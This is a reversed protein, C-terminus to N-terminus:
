MFVASKEEDPVFVDTKVLRVAELINFVPYIPEPVVQQRAITKETVYFEGGLLSHDCRLARFGEKHGEVVSLYGTLSDHRDLLTYEHQALTHNLIKTTQHGYYHPNYFMTHLMAPVAFSIYTIKPSLSTSLTALLLQLGSRTFFDSTGMLQPLMRGSALEMGTFAFYSLVAPTAEAVRSGYRSLGINSLLSFTTLFSLLLVPFYTLTETILPGFQAGFKASFPFLVSQIVPIYYCYPGIWDKSDFEIKQQKFSKSAIYAVIATFTIGKQHYINSPISGYVPSLNYQSVHSGVAAFALIALAVGIRELVPKEPTAAAQANDSKKEKPKAKPAM